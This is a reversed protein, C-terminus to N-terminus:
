GCIAAFTLEPPPVPLEGGPLSRDLWIWADLAGDDVQRMGAGLASYRWGGEEDWNFYAWYSCGGFGRCACLCDEAPFDCGQGEIACVLPGMPNTADISLSLGSALLLDHGSLQSGELPVCATAFSGDPLGVILGARGSAPVEPAAQCAGLASALLFASGVWMAANPRLNM